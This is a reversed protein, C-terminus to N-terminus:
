RRTSTRSTWCFCRPNRWGAPPSRFAASPPFLPAPVAEGPRGSGARVPPAAAGGQAPRGEREGPSTAMGETRGREWVRPCPHGGGRGRVVAHGAAPTGSWLAQCLVLAQAAPTNPHALAFIQKFPTEGGKKLRPPWRLPALPSPTPPPSAPLHAVTAALRPAARQPRSRATREGFGSM